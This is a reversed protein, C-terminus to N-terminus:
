WISLTFSVQCHLDINTYYGDHRGKCEFDIKEPVSIYFPYNTLDAGKLERLWGAEAFEPTWITDMNILDINKDGAALRRVLLERSIDLPKTGKAAGNM